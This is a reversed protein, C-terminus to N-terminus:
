LEDVTVLGNEVFQALFENGELLATGLLPRRGTALVRVDREVSNWRMTVEYISLEVESDNALNASQVGVFRLQWAEVWELPLPLAGTFGTDVVFPVELDTGNPLRLIMPLVAQRRLVQGVMM